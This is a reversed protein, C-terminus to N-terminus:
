KVYKTLQVFQYRLHCKPKHCMNKRWNNWSFLEILRCMINKINRIGEQMREMDNIYMKVIELIDIGYVELDGQIQIDGM